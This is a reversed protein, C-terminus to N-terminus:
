VVLVVWPRRDIPYSGSNSRSGRIQISKSTALGSDEVDFLM